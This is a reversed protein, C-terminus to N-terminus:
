KEVTTPNVGPTPVLDHLFDNTSNNTDQYIVRNNVIMKAKRRVSKSCYTGGDLYTYGADVDNQLRKYRKDTEVRVIEVGDIVQKKDIMFYKTTATSGPKTKFNNADAVYTTWATPLRFIVVAAGFVSHIWDFMTASTTYMLTLNPVGPYDLDKGPLDVYTEWDANGLNVPSLPNGNPDSKHNLGDQAIVISKGPYVPHQKGTGPIIWVHFTIPLLDMFTGDTNVWVNPNSSTQELVGICLGDAYLTDTSNNYIEHFQDDYYSKADPTKSGAFYVEKIVFGGTNKALTLNLIVSSEDALLYENINGNFTYDVNEVKLTFSSTLSYNGEPLVAEVRGTADATLTSERGTSLNKLKIQVGDPVSGVTFGAPLVLFVTMTHTPTVQDCSQFLNVCTLSLLFLVILKKM